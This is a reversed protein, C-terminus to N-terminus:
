PWSVRSTRPNSAFMLSLSKSVHTSSICSQYYTPTKNNPPICPTYPQAGFIQPTHGKPHKRNYPLRPLSDKLWVTYSTYPRLINYCTCHYCGTQSSRTYEAMFDASHEVM